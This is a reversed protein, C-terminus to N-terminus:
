VRYPFNTTNTSLLLHDCILIRQRSSDYLNLTVAIALNAQDIQLCIAM